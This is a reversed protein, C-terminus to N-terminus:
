IDFEQSTSKVQGKIDLIMSIIKAHKEPDISSSNKLWSLCLKEIDDEILLSDYTTNVDSNKHISAPACDIKLIKPSCNEKITERISKLENSPAYKNVHVNVINNEFMEKLEPIMEETISDPSKLNYDIFRRYKLKVFEYKGTETDYVCFGHDYKREGFNLELPSGVYIINEKHQHKHLHGLFAKNFRSLITPSFGTNNYTGNDNEFFRMMLHGILVNKRRVDMTSYIESIAPKLKAYDDIWHLFWFTTDGYDKRSYVGESFVNAIDALHRINNQGEIFVKYPQDHNGSIISLEINNDRFTELFKYSECLVLSTFGDRKHFLDGTIFLKQIDNDLCYKKIQELSRLSDYIRFSNSINHGIHIDATIAIKM